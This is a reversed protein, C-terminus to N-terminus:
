AGETATSRFLRFNLITLVLVFLFLLLGIASAVGAKGM